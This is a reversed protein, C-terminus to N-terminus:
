PPFGRFCRTTSTHHRSTHKTEIKSARTHSSGQHSNELPETIVLPIESWAASTRLDPQLASHSIKVLVLTHTEIKEKKNSAYASRAPILACQYDASEAANRKPHSLQINGHRKTVYRASTDVAGLSAHYFHFRKSLPLFVIGTIPSANVNHMM